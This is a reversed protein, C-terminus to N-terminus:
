TLQRPLSSVAYIVVAPNIVQTSGRTNRSAIWSSLLRVVCMVYTSGTTSGKIDEWIVLGLLLRIAYMVCVDGPETWRRKVQGMVMTLLVVRRDPYGLIYLKSNRLSSLLCYHNNYWGLKKMSQRMVM